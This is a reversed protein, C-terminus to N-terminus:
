TVYINRFKSLRDLREKVFESNSFIDFYSILCSKYYYSILIELNKSYIMLHLFLTKEKKINILAHFTKGIVLSDIKEYLFMAAKLNLYKLDLLSKDYVEQLREAHQTINNKQFDAIMREINFRIDFEFEISELALQHIPVLTSETALKQSFKLIETFRELNFLFFDKIPDWAPNTKTKMIGILHYTKEELIQNTKQLFLKTTEQSNLIIMPEATKLM